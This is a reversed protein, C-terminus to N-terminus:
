NGIETGAGTVENVTAGYQEALESGEDIYARAEAFNNQEFADQALHFLNAIRKSVEPNSDRLNDASLNLVYHTLFLGHNNIFENIDIMMDAEISPTNSSSIEAIMRKINALAHPEIFRQYENIIITALLITYNEESMNENQQLSTKAKSVDTIIEDWLMHDDDITGADNIKSISKHIDTMFGERKAEQFGDSNLLEFAKEIELFAKSDKNGRSLTIKKSKGLVTATIDFNENGDIKFDFVVESGKPLDDRDLTVYGQTELKYKGNEIDCFIKLHMFQQNEYVTKYTKTEELPTPMREEIINDLSTNGDSDTIEIFYNHNTATYVMVDGEAVEVNETDEIAGYSKALKAAGEAIALMPKKGVKVKEALFRERMMNQLLPISSTGGVMLFYDIMNEEYDMKALLEEILQISREGIPKIVEEFDSRSVNIDIDIDDGDEDELTGDIFINASTSASLTKKAKDVESRLQDKFKYKKKLPLNEIMSNIDEIDYEESVKSLVYDMLKRDIDDGGLWRDGGTGEELISDGTISLVSIDFTGGGFDYVLVTKSDDKNIEEEGYAIAAASPEALLKIVKLGALEAAQKTAAKQKETFYAPVTIVAHTVQGVKNEADKKVKKLIEASVQQPTYQKEDINIAVADNTGQRLPEIKFQYYDKHNLMSQVMDDEISGGMLRKVSLVTNVPFRKLQNLASTGVKIDGNTYSVCSRTLDENESNQLIETNDITIAFVTNTTGLDIGIVKGQKSM